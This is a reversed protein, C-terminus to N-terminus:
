KWDWSNTFELGVPLEGEEVTTDIVLYNDKFAIPIPFGLPYMVHWGDLNRDHFDDLFTGSHAVSAPTIAILLAITLM